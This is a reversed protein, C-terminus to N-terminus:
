KCHIVYNCASKECKLIEEQCLKGCYFCEFYGEVKRFFKLDHNHKYYYFPVISGDKLFSFEGFVCKLHASSDCISCSYYWHSPDKEQECIDCYSQEKDDHYTLNLM